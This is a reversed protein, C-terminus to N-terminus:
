SVDRRRLRAKVQESAGRVYRVARYAAWLFAPTDPPRHSHKRADLYRGREFRWRGAGVNRAKRLESVGWYDPNKRLESLAEANTAELACRECIVGSRKHYGEERPINQNACDDCLADGRDNDRWWLLCRQRWLTRLATMDRETIEGPPAHDWLLIGNSSRCWPCSAKKASTFLNEPLGEGTAIDRKGPPVGSGPLFMEFSFPMDQLCRACLLRHMASETLTGVPEGRVTPWFDAFRLRLAGQGTSACSQVFVAAQTFLPFHTGELLLTQHSNRSTWGAGSLRSWFSM